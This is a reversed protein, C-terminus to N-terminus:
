GATDAALLNVIYDKLTTAGRVPEGDVQWPDCNALATLGTFSDAAATSFGAALFATRWKKPPTRDVTVPSGLADAFAQAVDEPTYRRPGEVHHVGRDPEDLQLLRAAESGVDAPAVMPLLRDPDLMVAVQGQTRATSAAGDWNSFLYGARVIATPAELDRLLSEFRHLTGLDGIRHGPRAGYTSLAVVREVPTADLAAVIADATRDEDADPDGIISGLPNLAFVRVASSSVFAGALAAPDAVDAVVPDAGRAKWVAAKETSRTVVRVRRRSRLLARATASGIHGTGGLVVYTPDDLM